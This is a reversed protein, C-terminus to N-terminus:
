GIVELCKNCVEPQDGYNIFTGEDHECYNDIMSQLKQVIGHKRKWDNVDLWWDLGGKIEELEEQTFDNM